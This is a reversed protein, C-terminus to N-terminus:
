KLAKIKENLKFEEYLRYFTDSWKRVREAVAGMEEIIDEPERMKLVGTLKRFYLIFEKIDDESVEMFLEKQIRWGDGVYGNTPRPCIANYAAGIIKRATVESSCYPFSEGMSGLAVYIYSHLTKYKKNSLDAMNLEYLKFTNIGDLNKRILREAERLIHEANNQKEMEKKFEEMNM